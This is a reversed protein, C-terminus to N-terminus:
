KQEKAEYNYIAKGKPLNILSDIQKISCQFPQTNIPQSQLTQHSIIQQMNTRLVSSNPVMSLKGTFDNSGYEKKSNSKIGELLRILLINTPLEDVSKDVVIRCEPCLLENASIVIEDLCKKCFTHQCPLVKASADLLELCVPCELAKDLLDILLADKGDM